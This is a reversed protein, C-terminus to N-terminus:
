DKIGETTVRFVCESDPLNPSDVLKAIRKDEKSRRLYVRYTSQHAVVHGGIPETPDGFMVDPRAMVQNTVYVAINYMDALKQLEHLHKNIKQQRDALTGRGAYESRFLSMLSDIIIIKINHDEILDKAKDVLVIQHDSNVARAVFINKLVTEPDLGQGKAMEVIREPRFTHETDIFLASGGLGGKEPPLQVNVVLQFGVQSKGSGFKGFFETIAQTEIGGGLLKDLEASGTKVRQATARRELIKDASEFGIDLSDRALKTLKNATAESIGELASLEKVSAVALSEMSKFGAEALKEAMKEGVGPLEEITEYKKQAM